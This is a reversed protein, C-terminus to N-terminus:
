ILPEARGPEAYLLGGGLYGFIKEEELWTVQEPNATRPIGAIQGGLVARVSVEHRGVRCLTMPVLVRHGGAEVEVYRFLHESRDVWLDVVKGGVVGDAGVVDFGRPDTEGHDIAFGEPEAVRLPVIRALGEYTTDPKDARATWAGPGIGDVMPNGTPELPAGPWPGVPQAKLERPDKEPKLTPAYVDHGHAMRFTKPKPLAPYGQLREAFLSLCNLGREMAEESLMSREDLGDALHVRQKLRGIIQLAGDEERAIVLQFSNSGLDVAAFEQPRPTKDNIPM